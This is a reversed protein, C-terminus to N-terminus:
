LRWRPWTARAALRCAGSVPGPQVRGGAGTGRERRREGASAARGVREAAGDASGTTCPIRALSFPVSDSEIRRSTESTTACVKTRQCHQYICELFHHTIENHDAVPRTDHSVIHLSDQFSRVSGIVRVYTGESGVAVLLNKFIIFKLSSNRSFGTAEHKAEKGNPLIVLVYALFLAYRCAARREAMFEDDGNDLWLKVEVVGTSDEVDFKTFTSQEEVKLVNGVIKVQHLEAGDVKWADDPHDQTAGKLQKVTLPILTQRDKSQV